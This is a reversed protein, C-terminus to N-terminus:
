LPIDRRIKQFAATHGPGPRNRGSLDLHVRYVADDVDVISAGRAIMSRFLAFDELAAYERFGGVACFLDVPVMTGIVCCNAMRMDTRPIMRPEPDTTGDAYVGITNPRHLTACDGPGTFTGHADAMAQLYGADLEDDADLFVLHTAGQDIVEDAGANRAGALTDGHLWVRAAPQLTQEDVSTGARDALPAWREIDGYTAIVVGIM